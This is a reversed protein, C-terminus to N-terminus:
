KKVNLLPPTLYTIAGIRGIILALTAAVAGVADFYKISIFLVILIVVVEAITAWTIPKTYRSEVLVARQFNILVSLGPMLIMIMLPIKAFHTLEFSLGSVTKFWFDSLPTFAILGLTAAAIIGLMTAFNKLVPYSGKYKSLLAIGVEQFSLGISRFIFVFSTIVPLVALSEIPLRSQGIFFIVLPQVGLTITSTLALPYYFNYIEKYTLKENEISNLKEKKLKEVIKWTMIKSAIAELIVGISLASAGVMVGDFNSFYFLVLGTIGMSTLRIVTGYAVRRTQNNRILIGQYFRRYGIAGPWPLLIVMANYTLDAVQQPLGILGITFFDFIFPIIFVLMLLTVVSNLAYIFNRLKIFSQRNKVLATSASMIMIVPAEIMLAFSFAVGYAALNFKPEMMRAIVAALFPGEISMMMWTAALPLWFKFITKYTLIKHTM